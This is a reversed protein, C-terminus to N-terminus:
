RPTYIITFKLSTPQLQNLRAIMIKNTTYLGLLLVIFWGATLYQRAAHKTM